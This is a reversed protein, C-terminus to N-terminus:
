SLLGPLIIALKLHVAGLLPLLQLHGQLLHLRLLKTLLRIYWLLFSADKLICKGDPQEILSVHYALFM